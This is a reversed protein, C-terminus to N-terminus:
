NKSELDLELRCFAEFYGKGKGVLLSRYRDLGDIVRVYDVYATQTEYMGIARMKREGVPTIDLVVEATMPTWVEYGLVLGDYSCRELGRLVGACLARHDGHIEGPWTVYVVRPRVREVELVARRAIEDLDVETVVCSDPFGWFDVDDVFLEAMATRSEARRKAALDGFKQDPDGAIGDTAVVVRAVDGRMRHLALAGGPGIVEDDPHPSFCLAPGAPPETWHEPAGKSSVDYNEPLKM